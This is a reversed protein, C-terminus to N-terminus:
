YPRIVISTNDKFRIGELHITGMSSGSTGAPRIDIFSLREIRTPLNVNFGRADEAILPKIRSPDYYVGEMEIEAELLNAMPFFIKALSGLVKVGDFASLEQEGDQQGARPANPTLGGSLSAYLQQYDETIGQADVAAMEADDLARLGQGWNTSVSTKPVPLASATSAAYAVMPQLPAVAMAVFAAAYRYRQQHKLVRQLERETIFGQEILVEGLRRGEHSQLALAQELQLESLLGRNVLLRGLRSRDIIEQRVAM